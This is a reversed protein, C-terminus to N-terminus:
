GLEIQEGLLAQHLGLIFIMKSIKLHIWSMSVKMYKEVVNERDVPDGEIASEECEKVWAIQFPGFVGVDLPQLKHTCHPPLAFLTISNAFALKHIERTEHSQYGDSM